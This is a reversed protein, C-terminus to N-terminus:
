GQWIEHEGKMKQILYCMDDFEDQYTFCIKIKKKSVVSIHSILMVLTKRDLKQINGFERFLEICRQYSSTKNLVQQKKRDLEQISKHLREENTSYINRLDLYEDQDVIGELYDRYLSENLNQYRLLENKASAVLETLADTERKLLPMEDVHKLLKDIDLLTQIPEFNYQKSYEAIKYLGLGNHGDKRSYGEEFFHMIEGYTVDLIPNSVEVIIGKQNVIYVYIVPNEINMAAEIANDLLIGLIEVMVFEPIRCMGQEATMKYNVNIGKEDAEKFKNYLFGAVVPWNCNLLRYFKNKQMINGFYKNQENVLEEYTHLTYHMGAIAQLHNNFEHQNKRMTSILSAFSDDYMKHMQLEMEVRSKMEKEKQWRYAFISILSTIILLIVFQGVSTEMEKKYKLIGGLMVLFSIVFACIVTRNKKILYEFLRHLKKRVLVILFFAIFNIGIAMWSDNLEELRLLVICIGGLIQSIGLVVVYLLNGMILSRIDTDFEIIIYLFILFYMLMSLNRELPYINILEFLICDACILLVSQIDIKIKKNYIFHLCCIINCIEMLTYLREGM